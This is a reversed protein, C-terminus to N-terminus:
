DMGSEPASLWNRRIKRKVAAAAHAIYMIHSLQARLEAEPKPVKGAGLGRESGAYGIEPIGAEPRPGPAKKIAQETPVGM